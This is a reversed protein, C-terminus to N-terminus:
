MGSLSRDLAAYLEAMSEDTEDGMNSLRFTTGKIKGYGGDIAFGEARMRKQLETVDIVRGSRKAGNDICTLSVSEFGEDPFLEFGHKKAWERTRHALRLHREFRPELGEDFIEGLKSRLAYVHSISPTSPTMNKEANKQFELLDFYYGRDPIGSAKEIASASCAFVSLGPPLAFAKQVGALLLDVGLADFEIKKATLSSVTDVIFSVDPYKKKLEAIRELPMMTGTSTENHVLTIADFEGSSLKADIQEASVASGWEIRLAEAEKGCRRTVDFWKDSFAGAMVNLAKRSVLNRVAGEMIGWASSTSLFVLRQTYFLQQLLPQIEGYLDKFEQSRHGIM